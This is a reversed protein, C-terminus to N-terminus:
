SYVMDTCCAKTIGTSSSKSVHVQMACVSHHATAKANTTIAPFFIRFMFQLLSLLKIRNPFSYNVGNINVKERKGM